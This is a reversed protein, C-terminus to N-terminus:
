EQTLTISDGARLPEFTWHHNCVLDATDATIAYHDNGNRRVPEIGIVIREVGKIPTFARYLVGQQLQYLSRRGSEGPVVDSMKM